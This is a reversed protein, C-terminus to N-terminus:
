LPKIAAAVLVVAEIIEVSAGMTDGTCGGLRQRMQGRLWVATIAAALLPWPGLLVLMGLLASALALWAARRPLHEAMPSGLGNPRVYACTLLLFPIMARGAVPAMLLAAITSGAPLEALAAFKLLLVIVLTAVAIPGSCPDKMINLSRERDGRGGVWADASDALGDLHLGGTLLVWTSLLLAAALLPSTEPLLGHLALLLGGILLGVLPYFMVSGGLAQPSYAIDCPVPLRTLFQLALAFAHVLNM